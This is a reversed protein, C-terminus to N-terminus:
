QRDKAMEQHKEISESDDSVCESEESDIKNPSEISNMSLGSSPKFM